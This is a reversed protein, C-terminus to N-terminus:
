PNTSLARMEVSDRRCEDLWQEAQQITTFLKAKIGMPESFLVYMRALGYILRNDHCVIAQRGSHRSNEAGAMAAHERIISPSMSYHRIRIDILIDFGRGLLPDAFLQINFPAVQDIAFPDTLCIMIRSVAPDIRHYMPMPPSQRDHHADLHPCGSSSAAQPANSQM